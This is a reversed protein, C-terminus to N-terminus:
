DTINKNLDYLASLVPLNEGNKNQSYPQRPFPMEGPHGEKEPVFLFSDVAAQREGM